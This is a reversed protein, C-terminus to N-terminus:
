FDALTPQDGDDVPETVSPDDNEPDNVRKSVRYHHFSGDWGPELTEDMPDDPPETLWSGEMASPLILPMRHHVDAVASIAETTVIAVTELQQGNGEWRDWLGALAFPERDVREFRVPQAGRPTDRWEYYGDVVVLCRRTEYPERFPAAENLSERRANIPEPGAAPDDAWHPVLGWHLHSLETARENTIVTLSDSPAVNYRPTFQEPIDVGFRDVITDIDAFLSIRGCMAEFQTDTLYLGDDPGFRM